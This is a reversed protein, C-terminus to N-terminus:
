EVTVIIPDSSGNTPLYRRALMAAAVAFEAHSSNQGIGFTSTLL